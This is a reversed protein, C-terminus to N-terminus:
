AVAAVHQRSGNGRPSYAAMFARVRDATELRVDGGRRLRGVFGRDNVAMEGFTSAPVGTAVIFSEIDELLMERSTSM